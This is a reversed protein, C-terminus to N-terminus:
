GSRSTARGLGARRASGLLACTAVGEDRVLRMSQAWSRARM